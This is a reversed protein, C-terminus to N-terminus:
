MKQQTIQAAWVRVTQQPFFLCARTRSLASFAEDGSLPSTLLAAGAPDVARAKHATNFIRYKSECVRIKRACWVTERSEVDDGRLIKREREGGVGTGVGVCGCVWVCTGMSLLNIFM